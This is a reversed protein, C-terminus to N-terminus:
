SSKLQRGVFGTDKDVRIDGDILIHIVDEIDDQWAIIPDSCTVRTDAIKIVVTPCRLIPFTFITWVCRESM